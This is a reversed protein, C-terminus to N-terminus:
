TKSGPKNAEKLAAEYKEIASKYISREYLAEAEEFSWAVKKSNGLVLPSLLALLQAVGGISCWIRENM